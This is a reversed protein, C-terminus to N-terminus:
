FPFHRISILEIQRHTLGENLTMPFLNEAYMVDISLFTIGGDALGSNVVVMSSSYDWLGLNLIWFFNTHLSVTDLIASLQGGNKFPSHILCCQLLPIIHYPNANLM